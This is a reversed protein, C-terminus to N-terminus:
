LRVPKRRMRFTIDNCGDKRSSSFWRTQDYNKRRWTPQLMECRKSLLVAMVGLSFAGLSGALGVTGVSSFHKLVSSNVEKLPM